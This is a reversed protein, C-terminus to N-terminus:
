YDSSADDVLRSIKSEEVNLDLDLEYTVTYKVYYGEDDKTTFRHEITYGTLESHAKRTSAIQDDLKRVETKYNTNEDGNLTRQFLDYKVKNLSDIESMGKGSIATAEELDKFLLLRYTSQDEKLRAKIWTECNKEATEQNQAFVYLPLLLILIM